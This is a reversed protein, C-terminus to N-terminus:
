CKPLLQSFGFHAQLLSKEVRTM